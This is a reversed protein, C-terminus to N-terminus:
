AAETKTNLSNYGAAKAAEDVMRQATDMDGREVASLYDSDTTLSYKVGSDSERVELINELCSILAASPKRGQEFDDVRDNSAASRGNAAKGRYVSGRRVTRGYEEAWSDYDAGTGVVGDLYGEEYSKVFRKEYEAQEGKEACLVTPDYTDATSYIAFVSQGDIRTSYWNARDNINNTSTKIDAKVLKRLKGLESKTLNPYWYDGNLSYRVGNEDGGTYESEQATEVTKGQQRTGVVADWLVFFDRGSPCPNINSWKSLAPLKVPVCAGPVFM